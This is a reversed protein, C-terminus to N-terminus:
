RHSGPGIGSNYERTVNSRDAESDCAKLLFHERMQRLRGPPMLFSARGGAKASTSLMDIMAEGCCLIM